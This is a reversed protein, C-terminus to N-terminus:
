NMRRRRTGAYSEFSTGEINDINKELANKDRRSRAIENSFPEFAVGLAATLSDGTVNFNARLRFKVPNPFM